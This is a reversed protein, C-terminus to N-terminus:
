ENEAKISNALNIVDNVYWDAHNYHWIAKRQDTSYGSESLYNAASHIADSINWASKIGDGNGDVGYAAFTAPMFQMHGIAGAVSIMNDISSYQTEIKHIAALVFWDVNYLEEAKKYHELFDLYSHDSAAAVYMSGNAETLEKAKEYAKLWAKTQNKERELKIRQTISEKQPASVSLGPIKPVDLIDIQQQISQIESMNALISEDLTAANAKESTLSILIFLILIWLPLGSLFLDTEKSIRRM